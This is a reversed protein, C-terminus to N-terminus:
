RLWLFLVFAGQFAVSSWFFGPSESRYIKQPITHWSHDSYRFRGWSEGTYIEYAVFATTGLMMLLVWTEM